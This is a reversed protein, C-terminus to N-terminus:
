RTASELMERVIAVTVLVSSAAVRSGPYFGVILLLMIAADVLLSQTSTLENRPM